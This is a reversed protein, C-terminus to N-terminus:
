GLSTTASVLVLDSSHSGAADVGEPRPQHGPLGELGNSGDIVRLAVAGAGELSFSAQLGGDPPAHFVIWARDGGLEEEPVGRGAVRGGVVTGGDVRLDLVLLRVGPRRPTVRVTLERRSGVVTDSVTEVEAAALEAPDARGSWVEGGLYPYRVPLTFRSGVYGETYTGPRTETSV